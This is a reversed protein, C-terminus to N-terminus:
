QTGGTTAPSTSTAPQSATVAAQERERKAKMEAEIEEPTRKPGTEPAPQSAAAADEAERKAKMEAEIEEATRKPATSTAEPPTQPMTALRAEEALRKERLQQELRSQEATTITPRSASAPGTGRVTTGGRGQRTSTTPQTAGQTTGQTTGQTRATVATTGQTTTSRPAFLLASVTLELHLNDQGQQPTTITISDIRAPLRANEITQLFRALRATTTTAQATYKSEQFDRTGAAPRLGAGSWGTVTLGANYYANRIMADTRSPDPRNLDITQVGLNALESNVKKAKDLVLQNDHFKNQLTNIKQDMRTRADFWTTGVYYVAGLGLVGGLVWAILQERNTLTV